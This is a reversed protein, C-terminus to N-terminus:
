RELQLADHGLVGLAQVKRAECVFALEGEDVSERFKEIGGYGCWRM